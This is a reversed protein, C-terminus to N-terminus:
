MRKQKLPQSLYTEYDVEHFLLGSHVALLLLLRVSPEAVNQHTHRLINLEKLPSIHDYDELHEVSKSSSLGVTFASTSRGAISCNLLTIASPYRVM